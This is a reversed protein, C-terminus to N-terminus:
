RMPPAFLLGGKNWMANLGRELGLETDKGVNREFIEGYNGVLLITRAAWDKDLGLQSGFDGETGLLRKIEPNSSAKMAEVNLSTIGLEEGLIVANRTWRVVDAWADDGHRVILGLPEKSILENLIIHNEPDPLSARISALGSADTTYSDCADADYNSRADDAGKVVVSDFRLAHTRFYDALNLETTTGTDICIRAGDLDKVRDVGLDSRVLFGQGDYFTIGAFELGLNVDRSFTWTTNRSLLDVEGSQLATFREQSTLPIFKIKKPDGLVSAAVARCFDVDFGTWEGSASPLSFGALGTGTGCHLVGREKVDELTGAGSAVSVGVATLVAFVLGRGLLDFRM